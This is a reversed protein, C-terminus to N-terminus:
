SGTTAGDPEEVDFMEELMVQKFYAESEAQYFPVQEALGVLCDSHILTWSWLGNSKTGSHFVVHGPRASKHCVVCKEGLFRGESEVRVFKSEVAAMAVQQRASLIHLEAKVLEIKLLEDVLVSTDSM